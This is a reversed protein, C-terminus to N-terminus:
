QSALRKLNDNKTLQVGFLGGLLVFNLFQLETSPAKYLEQQEPCSDRQIELFRIIKALTHRTPSLYHCLFFIVM